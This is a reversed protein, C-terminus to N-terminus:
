PNPLSSRPYSSCSVAPLALRASLCAALFLTFLEEVCELARLTTKGPDENEGTKPMRTQPRAAQRSQPRPVALM